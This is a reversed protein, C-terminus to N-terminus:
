HQIVWHRRATMPWTPRPEVGDVGVFTAHRRYFALPLLNAGNGCGLELVRYSDLAPRPGGHLLSALALRETGDMRIPISRYPVEDYPDPTVM